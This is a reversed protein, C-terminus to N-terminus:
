HPYIHQNCARCLALAPPLRGEKVGTRVDRRGLQILPGAGLAIADAPPIQGERGPVPEVILEFEGIAFPADPAERTKAVRERLGRSAHGLVASSEFLGFVMLELDHEARVAELNIRGRRVAFREVSGLELSRRGEKM